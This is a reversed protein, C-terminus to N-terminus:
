KGVLWWREGEGRGLEAWHPGNFAFFGSLAMRLECTAEFTQHEEEEKVPVEKTADKTADAM